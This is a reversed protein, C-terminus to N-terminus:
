LARLMKLSVPFGGGQALANVATFLAFLSMLLMASARKTFHYHKKIM